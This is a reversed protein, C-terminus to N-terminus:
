LKIGCRHCYISGKKVATQCNDCLEFTTTEQSEEQMEDELFTRSRNSPTPLFVSLGLYVLVIWSSYFITLLIFAGRFILPNVKLLLGLTECVGTISFNGILRTYQGGLQENQKTLWKQIM